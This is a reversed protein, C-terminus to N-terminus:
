DQGEMDAQEEEEEGMEYQEREENTLGDM